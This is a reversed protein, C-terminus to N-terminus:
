IQDRLFRSLRRDLDKFSPYMSVVLLESFCSTQCDNLGYAVKTINGSQRKVFNHITLCRFLIEFRAGHNLITVNFYPDSFANGLSTNRPAGCVEMPSVTSVLSTTEHASLYKFSPIEMNM